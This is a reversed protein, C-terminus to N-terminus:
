EEGSDHMYKEQEMARLIGVVLNGSVQAIQPDMSGDLVESLMSNLLLIADAPKQILVEGAQGHSVRVSAVEQAPISEAKKGASVGRSELIEHFVKVADPTYDDAEENLIRIIEETSFSELLTRDVKYDAM